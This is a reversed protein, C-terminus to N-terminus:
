SRTSYSSFPCMFSPFIAHCHGCITCKVVRITFIEPDNIQSISNIFMRTYTTEDLFKGMAHCFPCECESLDMSWALENYENSHHLGDNFVINFFAMFYNIMLKHEPLCVPTPLLLIFRAPFM